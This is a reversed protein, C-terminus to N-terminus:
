RYHQFHQNTLLDFVDSSVDSRLAEALAKRTFNVMEHTSLEYSNRMKYLQLNKQIYEAFQASDGEDGCM